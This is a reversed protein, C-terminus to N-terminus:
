VASCGNRLKLLRKTTTPPERPVVGGGGGSVMNITAEHRVEYSQSVILVNGVPEARRISLAGVMASDMVNMVTAEVRNTHFGVLANLAHGVHTAPGIVYAPPEQRSPYPYSFPSSLRVCLRPPFIVTTSCLVRCDWLWLIPAARRPLTVALRSPSDGFFKFRDSSVLLLLLLLPKKLGVATCCSVGHISINMRATARDWVGATKM